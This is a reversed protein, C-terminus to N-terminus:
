PQSALQSVREAFAQMVIPAALSSCSNIEGYQSKERGYAFPPQLDWQRRPILYGIEDNALGFLMWTDSPILEKVTPELPADPFDVHPEVPHQFRGYVLEPYIEGPICAVWLEGMRLCAVETRAAYEAQRGLAVPLDAQRFDGTWAIARRRLVGTLRAARYLPNEIPVAVPASSVRLPALDISRTDKLARDALDAVARGYAEAFAFEGERLVNGQTDTLQGEPPAM